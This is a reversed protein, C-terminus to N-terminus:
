RSLIDKLTEPDCRVDVGAQEQALLMAIRSDKDSWGRNLADTMQALTLKAFQM